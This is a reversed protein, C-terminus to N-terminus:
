RESHLMDIWERCSKPDPKRLVYGFIMWDAGTAVANRAEDWDDSTIGLKIDTKAAKIQELTDVKEASGDKLYRTAYHHTFLYEVGLDALEKVRETVDRPNIHLAFIHKIGWKGCEEIGHRILDDNYGAALLVYDAGQKACNEAALGAYPCKYDAVLTVKDGVAKRIEGIASYGYKYLLPTGVELWEAGADLAMWAIRKATDYDEVDIAAQIWARNTMYM